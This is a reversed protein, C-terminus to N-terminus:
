CHQHNRITRQNTLQKYMIFKKKPCYNKWNKMISKKELLILRSLPVFSVQKIIKMQIKVLASGLMAKMYELVSEDCIGKRVKDCIESYEQDQSRMKETLYYIKFHEDWYNPSIDLRNDIYTTEWIMKQAVPPLQGYDGTSVVSVGGMFKQNGMIDQMRYNMRALMDSGLMSVEDIFLVLLDEYMFRLTSNKSPECKIYGRQQSPMMGLASEITAGGVIYAAVGTPALTLCVPKDLEEGSRKGRLKAANIMCKM